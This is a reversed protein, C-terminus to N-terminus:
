SEAKGDAEQVNSEEELVTSLGSVLGPMGNLQRDAEQKATAKPLIKVWNQKQRKAVEHKERNKTAKNRKFREVDKKASLEIQDLKKVVDPDYDSMVELMRRMLMAIPDPDTPRTPQLYSKCSRLRYLKRFSRKKELLIQALERGQSENQLSPCRMFAKHLQSKFHFDRTRLPKPKQTNAIHNPQYSKCLKQYTDKFSRELEDTSADTPVDMADNFVTQFLQDCAEAAKLERDYIKREPCTADKRNMETVITDAAKRKGAWRGVSGGAKWGYYVGLALGVIGGVVAGLLAGHPGIVSGILGGVKIGGAVFGGIGAAGGLVSGIPKGWAERQNKQLDAREKLTPPLLELDLIRDREDPLPRQYFKEPVLDLVLEQGSSLGADSSLSSRSLGSSLPQRVAAPHQTADKTIHSGAVRVKTDQSQESADYTAVGANDISSASDM